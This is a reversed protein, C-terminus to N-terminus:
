PSKELIYFLTTIRLQKDFGTASLIRMGINVFKSGTLLAFYRISLPTILPYSKKFQIRFGANTFANQLNSEKFFSIHFYSWSEMGVIRRLRTLIRFYTSDPTSIILRGRPALLRQASKLIKSPYSLHEFVSVLIIVDFYNKLSSFPEASDLDEAKLCCAQKRDLKLAKISRDCSAPVPEIGWYEDVESLILRTLPGEGFGIELLRHIRGDELILDAIRRNEAKRWRNYAKQAAASAWFQFNEPERDGDTVSPIYSSHPYVFFLGCKRCRYLNQEVQNHSAFFRSDSSQCLPCTVDSVNM